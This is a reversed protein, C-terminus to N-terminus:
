VSSDTLRTTEAQIFDGPYAPGISSRGSAREGVAAERASAAAPYSRRRCSPPTKGLPQQARIDVPRAGREIAWLALAVTLPIATKGGMATGNEFDYIRARSYGLLEALGRVSYGRRKRWRRLEAGTVAPLPAVPISVDRPAPDLFRPSEPEEPIGVLRWGRGWRCEVGIDSGALAKRLHCVYVHVNNLVPDPARRTVRELLFECSLYRGPAERLATLLRWVAPAVRVGGITRALDDFLPHQVARSRRHLDVGCNHCFELTTEERPAAPALVNSRLSLM